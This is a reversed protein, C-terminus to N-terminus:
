GHVLLLSFCLPLSQHDRTLGTDELLIMCLDINLGTVATDCVAAEDGVAAKGGCSSQGCKAQTPAKNLKALVLESAGEVLRLLALTLNHLM